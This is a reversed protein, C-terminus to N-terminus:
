IEIRTVHQLVIYYISNSFKDVQIRLKGMSVSDM